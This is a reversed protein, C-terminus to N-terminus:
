CNASNQIYKGWLTSYYNAYTFISFFGILGALHVATIVFCIPWEIQPQFNSKEDEKLIKTEAEGLNPFFNHGRDDNAFENMSDAESKFQNNNISSRKRATLNENCLPSNTLAAHQTFPQQKIDINCNSSAMADVFGGDNGVGQEIGDDDKDLLGTM